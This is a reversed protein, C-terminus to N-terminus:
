SNKFAVAFCFYKFSGCIQNFNPAVLPIKLQKSCHISFPAFQKQIPSSTFHTLCHAKNSKRISKLSKLLSGIITFRRVNARVKFSLGFSDGFDLYLLLHWLINAGYFKCKSLHNKILPQFNNAPTEYASGGRASKLECSLVAWSVAETRKHISWM